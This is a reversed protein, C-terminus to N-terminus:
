GAARKRSMSPPRVLHSSTMRVLAVEASALAAWVARDCGRSRQRSAGDRGIRSAGVVHRRPGPAAVRDPRGRGGRASARVRRCQRNTTRRDVPSPLAGRWAAKDALTFNVTFRVRQRDSSVSRQFGLLRWADGDPLSYLSGSGRFGLERLRPAIHERVMAQYTEQATTM